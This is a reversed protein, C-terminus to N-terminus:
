VPPPIVTFSSPEASEVAAVVRSKTPSATVADPLPASFVMVIASSESILAIM